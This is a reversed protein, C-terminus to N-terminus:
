DGGSPGAAPRPKERRAQPSRPCTTLDSIRLRPSPRTRCGKRSCRESCKCRACMLITTSEVRARRAPRVRGRRGDLGGAILRVKRVALRRFCEFESGSESKLDCWIQVRIPRFRGDVTVTLEAVRGGRLVKLAVKKGVRDGLLLDLLEEPAEVAHGDFELLVDGVLLGASAAPSGATVGVVLLAQARRDAGQQSEPLADPQGALGLYGRKLSGHELV